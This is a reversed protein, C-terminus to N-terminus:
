RSGYPMYITRGPDETDVPPDLPIASVDGAEALIQHLSDLTVVLRVGVVDALSWTARPPVDSAGYRLRGDSGARREVDVIRGDALQMVIEVERDPVAQGAIDTGPSWDFNLEEVPIEVTEGSAVLRVTDGPEMTVQNGEGDSVDAGFRGDTSAITTASGKEAGSGDLVTIAVPQGAIARGVVRDTHVYVQGLSRFIQRYFRHGEETFFAIEFGDGPQRLGGQIFTQFNGQPNVLFFRTPGGPNLCDGAPWKITGILGAPGTGQMQGNDWNVNITIEPLTIEATEDGMVGRVVHGPASLAPKGEEDSMVLSFASNFGANGSADAVVSAADVLEASAAALPENTVGCANAGGHQVNLMPEYRQKFVIHGVPVRYATTVATGPIVDFPNEFEATWTGDPNIEPEDNGFQQGFGGSGGPGGPGGGFNPPRQYLNTVFVELHGGPETRGGIVDTEKDLDVELVPITLELREGSGVPQMTVLDGVDPTLRQGGDEFTVGFIADEDTSAVTNFRTNGAADKMQVIVQENPRWSGQLEGSDLNLRLGPVFNQSNINHDQERTSFTLVDNYQLDFTEAFDASFSGDDASTVTMEATDSLLPRFISVDVDRAGTTEGNILDDQVFAVGRLEPVTIEFVDDGVTARIIDFARVGVPDGADDTFQIFWNGGGGGGGFGGGPGFGGGGGGIDDSGDAVITVGDADVLQVAVSRNQPGNGTLFSEGIETTMRVAAWTTFLEHGSLLRAVMQGNMPPQIDRVGAFSAEYSGDIKVPASVQVQNGGTGQTLIVEAGNPAEGTIQDAQHNTRASIAEVNVIVPDGAVFAVEVRDGIQLGDEGGFGVGFNGANNVNDTDTDKVTGDPARLTVTITSGPDAVGQVVQQHVGVRVQEIAEVARVRLGPVVVYSARLRWGPGMGDAGAVEVVYLGDEDATGSATHVAGDFPPFAEIEVAAGPVTRGQVLRDPPSVNDITIDEIRGSLTLSAGPIESSQTVSIEDGVAIPGFQNGPGGPGGPGGGGGFGGQPLSYEYDGILTASSSGKASGDDGTLTVAVEDGPSAVGSVNRAGITVDVTLAAFFAHFTNDFEDEWTVSGAHGPQADATGALSMAFSGDGGATLTQTLADTIGPGELVQVLLEGGAPARGLILDDAIDIGAALDPVTVKVEEAGQPMFVLDLGPTVGVPQFNFGGGPRGGGGFAPRLPLEVRGSEDSVRQPSRGRVEDGERIEVRVVTSPTTRWVVTNSWMAAEVNMAQGPEDQAFIASQAAAAIALLAVSGLILYKTRQVLSM